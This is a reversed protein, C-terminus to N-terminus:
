RRDRKARAFLGFANLVDILHLAAFTSSTARLAQLKTLCFEVKGSCTTDGNPASRRQSDDVTELQRKRSVRQRAIACKGSFAGFPALRRWCADFFSLVRRVVGLLTM